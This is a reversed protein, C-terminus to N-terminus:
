WSSAMRPHRRVGAAPIAYRLVPEHRDPDYMTEQSRGAASALFDRHRVLMDTWAQRRPVPPTTPDNDDDVAVDLQGATALADALAIVARGLAKTGSGETSSGIAPSRAPAGVWTASTFAGNSGQMLALSDLARTARALIDPDGHYRSWPSEYILALVALANVITSNAATTASAAWDKWAQATSFRTTTTGSAFLGVVAAPVRGAAM